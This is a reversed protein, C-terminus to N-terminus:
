AGTVLHANENISDQWFNIHLWRYDKNTDTAGSPKSLTTSVETGSLFAFPTARYLM